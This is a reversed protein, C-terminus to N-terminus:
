HLYLSNTLQSRIMEVFKDIYSFKGLSPFCFVYPCYLDYIPLINQFQELQKYLLTSAIERAENIEYENVAFYLEVAM